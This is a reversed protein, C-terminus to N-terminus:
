GQQNRVWQIAVKLLDAADSLHLKTKLRHRYTEITKVSLYLKEAIEHTSLGTGILALVELERDSLPDTPAAGPARRRPFMSRLIKDSMKESLYIEGDLVKHIGEVVKAAGEEKTLYGRAGARLAREAYVSEDRMSLVLVQLGPFRVQIDKILDLGNSDRLSLDVIAIDPKTAEITALADPVSDAEGCVTLDAKAEIVRSLGQRVVPHDDIIVVRAPNANPEKRSRAM